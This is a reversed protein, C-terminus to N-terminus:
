DRREELCVFDVVFRGVSAPSSLMAMSNVSGCISCLRRETDMERRLRRAVDRKQGERM